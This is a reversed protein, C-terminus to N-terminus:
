NAGLYLVRYTSTPTPDTDYSIGPSHKWVGDTKTIPYRADTRKIISGDPLSLARRGTIEDGVKVPAEPARHLVLYRKYLYATGASKRITIVNAGTQPLDDTGVGVIRSGEPLDRAEHETVIEPLEPTAPRDPHPLRRVRAVLARADERDTMSVEVGSKDLDMRARGVAFGRAALDVLRSVESHDRAYPLGDWAGGNYKRDRDEPTRNQDEVLRALRRIIDAREPTYGSRSRLDTLLAELSDTM